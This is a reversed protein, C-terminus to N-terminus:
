VPFRQKRIHSRIIHIWTLRLRIGRYLDSEARALIVNVTNKEHGSSLLSSHIFLIGIIQKVVIHDMDTHVIMPQIVIELNHGSPNDAVVVFPTYRLNRIRGIGKEQNRAERCRLPGLSRDHVLDIHITEIVAIGGIINQRILIRIDSLM